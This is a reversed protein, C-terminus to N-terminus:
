EQAHRLRYEYTAKNVERLRRRGVIFRRAKSPKYAGSFPFSVAPATGFTWAWPSLSDSPDHPPPGETFAQANERLVIKNLVFVLRKEEVGYRSRSWSAAAGTRRTRMLVADVEAAVKRLTRLRTREDQRERCLSARVCRVPHRAHHCIPTDASRVRHHPIHAAGPHKQTGPWRSTLRMTRRLSFRTCVASSLYTQNRKFPDCPRISDLQRVLTFSLFTLLTQADAGLDAKPYKLFVDTAM